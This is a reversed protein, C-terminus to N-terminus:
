RRQGDRTHQATKAKQEKAEKIGTSIKTVLKYDWAIPGSKRERENEVATAVDQLTHQYSDSRSARAPAKVLVERIREPHHNFREEGAFEEAKAKFTVSGEYTQSLVKKAAEAVEEESAKKYDPDSVTSYAAKQAVAEVLANREERFERLGGWYKKTEIEKNLTNQLIVTLRELEDKRKEALELRVAKQQTPTIGTEAAEILGAGHPEPENRQQEQRATSIRERNASVRAAAKERREKAKAAREEAHNLPKKTPEPVIKTEAPRTQSKTQATRKEEITTNHAKAAAIRVEQREKAISGAQEERRKRTEATAKQAAERVLDAAEVTSKRTRERAEKKQTASAQREKLRKSAAERKEKGKLADTERRAQIEEPTEFKRGRIEALDRQKELAADVRREEKRKAEAAAEEKQRKEQEREQLIASRTVEASLVSIDNTEFQDMSTKKITLPKPKSFISRLGSPQPLEALANDHLKSIIYGTVQSAIKDAQEKGIDERTGQAIAQKLEIQLEEDLPVMKGNAKALKAEISTIIQNIENDKPRNSLLPKDLM